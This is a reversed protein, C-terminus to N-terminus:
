GVFRARQIELKQCRSDANGAGFAYGCLEGAASAVLSGALAPLVRPLLGRTSASSRMIAVTRRLRVFPIAPSALAYGLRRGAGWPQARAAAFSRGLNFRERLWAAPQSVNLHATRAAPEIYVSHGKERLDQVLFYDRALVSELESGYGLLVSRKFCSNHGPLDDSPGPEALEVWRGYDLLLSAWSILSEPNANVMAPGVGAWPGRHAEILARAAGPQPFSHTEAFAVLPAGAARIGAARAAPLPYLESDVVTVSAFGNPAAREAGARAEEPAVIVLEIAAEAAEREWSKVVEAITEYSDTPLVVSLEAASV